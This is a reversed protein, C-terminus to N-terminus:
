RMVTSNLAHFVDHWIFGVQVIDGFKIAIQHMRNIQSSNNDDPSLM